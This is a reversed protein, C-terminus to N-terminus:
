VGMMRMTEAIRSMKERMTDVSYEELTTSEQTLVDYELLRVGESSLRNTQVTVRMDMDAGQVFGALKAFDTRNFRFEDIFFVDYENSHAILFKIIDSMTKVTRITVLLDGVTENPRVMAMRKFVATLSGTFILARKGRDTAEYVKEALIISKGSGAKGSIVKIM